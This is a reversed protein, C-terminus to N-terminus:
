HACCSTLDYWTDPDRVGAVVQRIAETVVAPQDQQIFHQSQRAISLRAGPVLTALDQQNALAFQEFAEGPWDPIPADIPRGRALVALPLPSLPADARAQALQAFSADFDVRELEAYSALQPPTSQNLQDFEAWQAPTLL